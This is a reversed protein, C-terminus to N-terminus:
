FIKNIWDEKRKLCSQCGGGMNFKEKLLDLDVNTSCVSRIDGVSVCFCECILVDDDLKEPPRPILEDVMEILRLFEKDMEYEKSVSRILLCKYLTVPKYSSAPHFDM